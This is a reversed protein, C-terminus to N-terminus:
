FVEKNLGLLAPIPSTLKLSEIPLYNALDLFLRIVASRSIDNRIAAEDLLSVTAEDLCFSCRIKKM